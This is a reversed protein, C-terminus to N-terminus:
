LKIKVSVELLSSTTAATTFDLTASTGSYSVSALESGIRAILVKATGEDLQAEEIGFKTLDLVVNDSSISAGPIDKVQAVLHQQSLLLDALRSDSVLKSDM